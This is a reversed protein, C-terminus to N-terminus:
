HIIWPLHHYHHHIIIIISKKQNLTNNTHHHHHHHKILWISFQFNHLTLQILFVFSLGTSLFFVLVKSLCISDPASEMFWHSPNLPEEGNTGRIPGWQGSWTYRYSCSDRSTNHIPTPYTIPHSTVNTPENVIMLDHVLKPEM